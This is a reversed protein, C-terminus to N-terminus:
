FATPCWDEPLGWNEQAEDPFHGRAELFPSLLTVAISWIGGGGGFKYM